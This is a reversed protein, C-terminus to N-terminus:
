IEKGNYLTKSPIAWIILIIVMALGIGREPPLSSCGSYSATILSLIALVAIPRILPKM